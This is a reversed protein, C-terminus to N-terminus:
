RGTTVTTQAEAQCMEGAAVRQMAALAACQCLSTPARRTYSAGEVRRVSGDDVVTVAIPCDGALRRGGVATAIDAGVGKQSWQWSLGAVTHHLVHLM